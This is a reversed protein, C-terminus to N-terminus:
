LFLQKRNNNPMKCLFARGALVPKMFIILLNKDGLRHSLPTFQKLRAFMLARVVTPVFM